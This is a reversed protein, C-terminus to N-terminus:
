TERNVKVSSPVTVMRHFPQSGNVWMYLVVNCFIQISLLVETPIEFRVNLTPRIHQIM